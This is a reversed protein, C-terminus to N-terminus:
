RRNTRHCKFKAYRHYASPWDEFIERQAAELPVQGTCVLCQLKSELRDKRKAGLEGEWPQLQLNDLKRPHGGLALPVIHDLEFESARAAEIDAERMLKLKVGNTYSTAPRVTKTYGPLCITEQINNQGVDPNLALDALVNFSALSLLFPLLPRPNM